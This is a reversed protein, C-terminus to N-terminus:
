SMEAPASLDVARADTAQYGAVELSIDRIYIRSYIDRSIAEGQGWMPIGCGADGARALRVTKEPFVKWRKFAFPQIVIERV